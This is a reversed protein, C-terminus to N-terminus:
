HLLQEAAAGLNELESFYLEKELRRRNAHQSCGFPAWGEFYLKWGSAISM